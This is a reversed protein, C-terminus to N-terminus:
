HFPKEKGCCKDHKKMNRKDVFGKGCNECNFPKEKACSKEHRKMNGKDSFGKECMDCNFPKEQTHSREHIRLKTTDYFRKGCDSCSHKMTHIKNHRKLQEHKSFIKDCKSCSFQNEEENSEGYKLLIADKLLPNTVAARDDLPRNEEGSNLLNEDAEVKIEVIPELKISDLTKIAQDETDLHGQDGQSKILEKENPSADESSEDKLNNGTLSQDTELTSKVSLSM